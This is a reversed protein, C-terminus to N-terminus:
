KVELHVKDRVLECGPVSGGAKLEELIKSKSIEDQSDTRAALLEGFLVGGADTKMLYAFLGIGYLRAALAKKVKEPIERLRMRAAEDSLLIRFYVCPDGTWDEGCNFRIRVVDPSLEAVVESIADTIALRPQWEEIKSVTSGKM